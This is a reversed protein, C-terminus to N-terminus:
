TNASYRGLLVQGGTLDSCNQEGSILTFIKPPELSIIEKDAPAM